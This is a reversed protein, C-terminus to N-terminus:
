CVSATRRVETWAEAVAEVVLERSVAVFADLATTCDGCVETSAFITAIGDAIATARSEALAYGEARAEADGEATCYTSVEAISEAIAFAVGQASAAATEESGGAGCVYM